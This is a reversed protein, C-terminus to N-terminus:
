PRPVPGARCWIHAEQESRGGLSPGCRRGAGPDEERGAALSGPRASGAGEEPSRGRLTSATFVTLVLCRCFFAGLIETECAFRM